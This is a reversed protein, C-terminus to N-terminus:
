DSTAVALEDFWAQGSGDSEKPLSLSLRARTAQAPAVLVDSELTWGRTGTLLQGITETTLTNRGNRWEIRLHAGASVDKVSMWGSMQYTNGATVDIVQHVNKAKGAAANLQLSRAGSLVPTTVVTGSSSDSWGTASQEFGPNALINDDSPGPSPDPSPSPSPTPSPSPSPSPDPDPASGDPVQLEFWHLAVKRVVAGSTLTASVRGRLDSYNTIAAAEQTTLAYSDQLIADSSIVLTKKAILRTGQLLSVTFDFRATDGPLGRYQWRMVHSSDVGPDSLDSLGFEWIEGNPKNRSRVAHPAESNDSSFEDIARYLNTTGGLDTKWEQITIDSDPRAFQVAAVSAQSATGPVLVCGLLLVSAWIARAGMLNSNCKEM